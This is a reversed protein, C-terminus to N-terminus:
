PELVAIQPYNRYLNDYDLGYGVVFKNPIQFGVFDPEIRKAEPLIKDLLVCSRVSRAGRERLLGVVAALTQGTDLIDDIVLVHKGRIDEQLDYLVKVGQARTATGPYNSVMMIGIRVPLPMARVLDALFVLSGTMIAVIILELDEERGYCSVIQDALEKVREAIQSKTILVQGLRPNEQVTEAASLNDESLEQMM